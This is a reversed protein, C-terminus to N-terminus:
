FLECWVSDYISQMLVGVNALTENSYSLFCEKFENVAIEDLQTSIYDKLGERYDDTSVSSDLTKAVIDELLQCGSGAYCYLPLAALMLVMVLKMNLLQTQSHVPLHTLHLFESQSYCNVTATNVGWSSVRIWGM